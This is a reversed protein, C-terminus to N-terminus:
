LTLGEDPVGRMRYGPPLREAAHLSVLGTENM